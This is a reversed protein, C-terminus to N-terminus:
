PQLYNGVSDCALHLQQKEKVVSSTYDYFGSTGTYNNTLLIQQLMHTIRM